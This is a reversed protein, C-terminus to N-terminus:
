RQPTMRYEISTCRCSLLSLTGGSEYSTSYLMSSKYVGEMTTMNLTKTAVNAAKFDDGVIYYFVKTNHACKSVISETSMHSSVLITVSNEWEKAEIYHEGAYFEISYRYQCITAKTVTKLQRGQIPSPSKQALVLVINIVCLKIIMSIGASM